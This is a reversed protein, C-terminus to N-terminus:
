LPLCFPGSPLSSHCATMGSLKCSLDIRRPM